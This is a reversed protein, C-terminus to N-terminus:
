WPCNVVDVTRTVSAAPNGGSDVLSYTVTYSGAAWGNVEGTRQVQPAVNGYCADMADVGPDVWQSGCTHTVQAAGRLALTPAATDNVTVTRIASVTRGASDWAVYSVSYTGEAGPNPGPGSSDTGTNFAHVPIPSGCGDFAQAGADSYTSGARCELAMDTSGNVVLRPGAEACRPHQLQLQGGNRNFPNFAGALSSWGCYGGGTLDVQQNGAGYTNTGSGWFGGAGFQNAVITFPTGRLDLNARGSPQNDCSMASGFPMSTVSEWGHWIQGSSTSFTQDATNVRLTVPDIRLKRYSTRVTSGPSAGGATYQSFNSAAGTEQLTLFEAPTGAMNHCYAQWQLAPEGNAYLTYEGDAAAPNASKIQQCSAAYGAVAQQETRLSLEEGELADGSAGCGASLAGLGLFLALSSNRLSRRSRMPSSLLNQSNM